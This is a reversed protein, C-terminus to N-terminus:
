RALAAGQGATGGERGERLGEIAEPTAITWDASPLSAASLGSRGARTM